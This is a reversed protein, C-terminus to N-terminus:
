YVWRGNQYRFIETVPTTQAVGCRTAGADSCTFLQEGYRILGVFPAGPYGTPRLEVRFDDSYGRYHISRADRQPKRRNADEVREMRAMWQSAFTDLAAAAARQADSPSLAAPAAGQALAGSALLPAALAFLFSSLRNRTTM